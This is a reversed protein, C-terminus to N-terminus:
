GGLLRRVEQASAEREAALAADTWSSDAELRYSGVFPDPPRGGWEEPSLMSFYHSGDAARYLHYVQGPRKRFSCRAEHLMADRQAAALVGRAQEQLARIQEAILSLKGTTAAAITANARAIERATDVLDIAPALRSLGYPSTHAPGQHNGGGHRESPGERDDTM